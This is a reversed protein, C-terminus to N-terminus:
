DSKRLRREVITMIKAFVSTLILYMIGITIYPYIGSMTLSNIKDAARMLDMGGILKVISTEKLLVIFENVLTPVMNKFAQPLIILKMTKLYPLGLARSAEMQGKDLSQIGSRIIEAIYAASNLGVGFSAIYLNPIDKFKDVALFNYIIMLQVLLPTGRIILIYFNAFHYFPNYKVFKKFKTEAVFDNSMKFIALITGLLMGFVSALATVQLTFILGNILLDIRGDAFM